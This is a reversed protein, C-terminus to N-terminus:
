KVAARTVTQNANSATFRPLRRYFRHGKGDREGYIGIFLCSALLPMSRHLVRVKNDRLASVVWSLMWIRFIEEIQSFLGPQPSARGASEHGKSQYNLRM